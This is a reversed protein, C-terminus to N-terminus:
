TPTVYVQIHVPQDLKEIEKNTQESLDVKGGGIM